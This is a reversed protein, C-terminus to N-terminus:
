RNDPLGGAPAPHRARNRGALVGAYVAEVDVIVRDWNHHTEVTRRAALGLRRALGPDDLLALIATAMGDVDGNPVVWANVMHRLGSASGASVVIPRAAAMYNLLKIPMGLCSLRPCVTVDAAALLDRVASFDDSPVFLTKGGIGLAVARARCEDSRANTSLVLRAAPRAAAVQRFAGFLLDLDQYPDLNGAYLVLPGPGLQDRAPSADGADLDIGAPICSLREVGRGRFYPMATETLVICWGARRPLETDLWRGALRALWRAPRTSFYTHLELRMANHVHYVVPLNAFRGRVAALAVALGEINHAHVVDVPWAHLLRRLARVLLVDLVPKQPSLPGRVPGLGRLKPVRQVPVGAPPTGIGDPYTLLRVAHGRRHLAAALQGILVQSGQPFPFRCAAIMAIRIQDAIVPDAVVDRM